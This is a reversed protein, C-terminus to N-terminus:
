ALFHEVFQARTLPKTDLVVDPIWSEPVSELLQEGLTEAQKRGGQFYTPVDFLDVGDRKAEILWYAVTGSM